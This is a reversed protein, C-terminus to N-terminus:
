ATGGKPRLLVAIRDLQDSSLPPAEAVVKSIYQELKAAALNRRAEETPQGHRVRCAVQARAKYIDKSM